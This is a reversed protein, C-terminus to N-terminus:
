DVYWSAIRLSFTDALWFGGARVIRNVMELSHYVSTAGGATRFDILLRGFILSNTHM